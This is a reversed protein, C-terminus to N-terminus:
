DELLFETFVANSVDLGYDTLAYGNLTRILVNEKVLRDLQKAYVNYISTGFQKEFEAEDIGECMRLGLFMFEEMTQSKSLIEVERKIDLGKEISELYQDMDEENHYRMGKYFSSAGLGFGLYEVRKWYGINHKCEYGPKAYNSIEYREYGYEKLIQKTKEYMERDLDVSPIANEEKAGESFRQAFETGEEIILSYASIHEPNCAIAQNLTTEYTEMTQYPLASMLDVNINTFGVERALKFNSVFEEYTHIRGLIKLEENNTSQLGFSLRNIGLEKYSKLKEHNVTGPNCEMTIECDKTITAVQHLADIIQGLFRKELLSPTGGGFFISTVMYEELSSGENNIEKCLANVYSEQVSKSCPGSLFDCYNCKRVCFPIHVYIEIEKM